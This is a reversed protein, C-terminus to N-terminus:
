SQVGVRILRNAPRQQRSKSARYGAEAAQQVAPNLAALLGGLDAARDRDTVRRVLRIATIDRVAVGARDAGFIALPDGAARCGADHLQRLCRGLQEACTNSQEVFRAVPPTHLAFWEASVLGTFRQGFALLRPAPIGYRELHFLLRGLTVGPSRWPRGRLRAALRGLPAITRGRILRAERGDALRISLAGPACRYFPAAIAP